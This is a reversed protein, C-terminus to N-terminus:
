VVHSDGSERIERTFIFSVICVGTLNKEKELAEAFDCIEQATVEKRNLTVPCYGTGNSHLFAIYYEYKM